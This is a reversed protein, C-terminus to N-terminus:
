FEGPELQMSEAPVVTIEGQYGTQQAWRRALDNALGQNNGIGNFRYLLEGNEDRIVWNGSFEQQMRRQQIDLTSGPIPAQPPRGAAVDKKAQRTYQLQKIFSKLESAPLEGAAYKAFHALLDGESQPQLLAYLKKLYDRRFAQPNIAASLAVTYRLLTNEIKSIDANLWDNGPARFEIYGDKTNISTYKDTFGSHLIKTAVGQLGTKMQNLLAEADVPNYKIKERIKGMASKCYTNGLRKFQDLIYDDGSLLALKIYDLNAIDYNPVSINMHLGTSDNTYCSNQQAWDIVKNLDSLLENIPLPPSVFELGADTDENPELSSDPEVVYTNPDRRGRHYESAYNVSRGIAKKFLSAVEGIDTEVEPYTWVPWTINFNESINSMYRYGQDRLFDYESFTDNEIHEERYADYADVYTRGQNEWEEEVTSELEQEVGESATMFNDFAPDTQRKERIEKASYITRGGVDMAAAVDEDSLGMQNSLYEEIKQNEDWDNNYIYDRLFDKGERQWESDVQESQWEWYQERLDEQLRRVEHSGNFDGDDFFEVIENISDPTPDDDYNPESEPDEQGVNPVIMEFEMGAVAGTQAALKKLNSPSMLVEVIFESARM